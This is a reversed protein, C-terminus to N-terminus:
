KGANFPRIKIVLINLHFTTIIKYLVTRWISILIFEEFSSCYSTIGVTLIKGGYLYLVQTELVYRALAAQVVNTRDLCDMCNVRFVSQQEWIVGHDDVRLIEFIHKLLSFINTESSGLFILVKM